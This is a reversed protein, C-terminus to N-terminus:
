CMVSKKNNIIFFCKTRYEKEIKEVINFLEKSDISTMKPYSELEKSTKEDYFTLTM